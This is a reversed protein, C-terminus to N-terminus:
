SIKVNTQMFFLPFITIRWGKIVSRIQAPTRYWLHTARIDCYLKCDQNREDQFNSVGKGSCGFKIFEKDILYISRGKKAIVVTFARVYKVQALNYTWTCVRFCWLRM